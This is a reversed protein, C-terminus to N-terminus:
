IIPYVYEMTLLRGPDGMPTNPKRKYRTIRIKGYKGEPTRIVYVKKSLEMSPPMRSLDMVIAGRRSIQYQIFGNEGRVPKGDKDLVPSTKTTLVPNVPLRGQVVGEEDTHRVAVVYLMDTEFQSAEPIKVAESLLMSNTEVAGGQAGIASSEGSNTRIDARHFALDWHKHHRSQEDSIALVGKEFSFYVFKDYASVDLEVTRIKIGTSPDVSPGEPESQEPNPKPKPAPQERQIVPEDERKKKCAGLMGVLLSAALVYMWVRGIQLTKM